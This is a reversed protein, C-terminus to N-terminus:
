AALSQQYQLVEHLLEVARKSPLFRELCGKIVNCDGCCPTSNEKTYGIFRDIRDVGHGSGVEPAGCYSCPKAYLNKTYYEEDFELRSERWKASKNLVSYRGHATRKWKNVKARRRKLEEESLSAYYNPHCKPSCYKKAFFANRFKFAKKCEPNACVLITNPNVASVNPRYYLHFCRPDCFRNAERSTLFTNCCYPNACKRQWKPKSPRKWAM